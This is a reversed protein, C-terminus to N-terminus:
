KSFSGEVKTQVKEDLRNLADLLNKKKSVIIHSWIINDNYEGTMFKEQISTFYKKDEEDYTIFLAHEDDVRDNIAKYERVFEMENPEMSDIDKYNDKDEKLTYTGILDNEETRKIFIEYGNMLRNNM